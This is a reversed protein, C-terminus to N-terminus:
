ARVAAALLSLLLMGFLLLVSQIMSLGRQKMEKMELEVLEM